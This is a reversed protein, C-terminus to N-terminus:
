QVKREGGKPPASYLWLVVFVLFSGIVGWLGTIWPWAAGIAFSRTYENHAYHRVTVEHKIDVNSLFPRKYNVRFHFIGHHDPVTFTVRFLTSNRLTAVPALKTRVYPSLM